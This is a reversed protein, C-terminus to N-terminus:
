KSAEEIADLRQDMRTLVSNVHNIFRDLQWRLSDAKEDATMDDWDKDPM